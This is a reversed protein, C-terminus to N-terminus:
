AFPQGDFPEKASQADVKLLWCCLPCGENMAGVWQYSRKCIGQKFLSQVALSTFYISNSADARGKNAVDIELRGYHQQAQAVLEIDETVILGTKHQALFSHCHADSATTRQGLERWRISAFQKPSFCHAIHRRDNTVAMQLLREVGKWVPPFRQFSNGLVAGVGQQGVM